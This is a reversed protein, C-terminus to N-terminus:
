EDAADSTYLLCAGSQDSARRVPPLRRPLTRATRAIRTIGLLLTGSCPAYCLLGSGGCHGSDGVSRRPGFAELIGTGTRDRWPPSRTYGSESSNLFDYSFDFLFRIVNTIDNASHASM